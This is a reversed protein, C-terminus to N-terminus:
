NIDRESSSPDICTPSVGRPLILTFPGCGATKVSRQMGASLTYGFVHLYDHQVNDGISKLM